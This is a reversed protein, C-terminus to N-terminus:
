KNQSDKVLKYLFKLAQRASSNSNSYVVHKGLLFQTVETTISVSTSPKPHRKKIEEQILQPTMGEIQAWEVLQGSLLNYFLIGLNQLHNAKNGTNKWWDSLRIKISNSPLDLHEVLINEPKINGFAFQSEEISNIAELTYKMISLIIRPSLNVKERVLGAVSGFTYYPMTFAIHHMKGLRHNNISEPKFIDQIQILNSKSFDKIRKLTLILESLQEESKNGRLRIYKLIVKKREKSLQKEEALLTMFVDGMPTTDNRLTKLIVYHDMRSLEVQSVDDNSQKPELKLKIPQKMQSFKHENPDYEIWDECEDDFIEIEYNEVVLGLKEELLKSLLVTRSPSTVKKKRGDVEVIFIISEEVKKEMKKIFSMGSSPEVLEYYVKNITDNLIGIQNETHPEDLLARNLTVHQILELHQGIFSKGGKVLVVNMMNLMLYLHHQKDSDVWDNGLIEDIYGILLKLAFDQHKTTSVNFVMAWEMFYKKHEITTLVRVKDFLTPFVCEFFVEPCDSACTVFINIMQTGNDVIEELARQMMREIVIPNLAKLYRSVGGGYDFKCRGFMYILSSHVLNRNSEAVESTDMFEEAFQGFLKRITEFAEDEFDSITKPMSLVIIERQKMLSQVTHGLSFKEYIHMLRRLREIRLRQTDLLTEQPYEM